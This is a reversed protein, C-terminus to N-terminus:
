GLTRAKSNDLDCGGHSHEPNFLYLLASLKLFVADKDKSDLM